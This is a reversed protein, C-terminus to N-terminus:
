LGDIWSDYVVIHPRPPLVLFPDIYAGRRRVGFHMADGGDHGPRLTAVVQGVDVFSGQAVTSTVPELTIDHDDDTHIVLVGRGAVPGVFTVLGTAPARVLAGAVAVIDIGRHGEGWESSPREFGRSVAGILPWQWRIAADARGVLLATLVLVLLAIVPPPIRRVATVDGSHCHLNGLAPM